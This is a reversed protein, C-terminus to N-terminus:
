YDKIDVILPLFAVLSLLILMVFNLGQWEPVYTFPYYIFDLYGKARMLFYGAMAVSIILLLISDNTRWKYLKYSTKNDSIGLGRAQMYQATNISSELAWSSLKALVNATNTFNAKIGLKKDENSLKNVIILERAQNLYHPFFRLVLTLLLAFGPFLGKFLFLLNNTSIHENLHKIWLVCLGLRFGGQAGDIISDLTFYNGNSLRFLNIFGYHRFMSNITATFIMFIFPLLYTLIKKHFLYEGMLYDRYILSATVAIYLILLEIPHKVLIILSLVLVYYALGLGPYLKEFNTQKM